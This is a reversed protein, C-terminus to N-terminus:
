FFLYILTEDGTARALTEALRQAKELTVEELYFSGNNGLGTVLVMASQSDSEVLATSLPKSENEVECVDSIPSIDCSCM